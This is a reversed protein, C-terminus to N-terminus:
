LLLPSLNGSGYESDPWHTLSGVLHGFNATIIYNNSQKYYGVDGMDPWQICNMPYGIPYKLCKENKVAFQVQMFHASRLCSNQLIEDTWDHM